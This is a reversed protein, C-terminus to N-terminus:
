AHRELRDGGVFHDARRADRTAYLIAFIKYESLNDIM